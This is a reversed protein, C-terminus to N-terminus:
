VDAWNTCAPGVHNEASVLEPIVRQNTLAHGDAPGGNPHPQIRLADSVRPQFHVARARRGEIDSSIYIHVIKERTDVPAPHTQPWKLM